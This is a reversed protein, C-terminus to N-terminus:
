KMLEKILQEKATFVGTAFNYMVDFREPEGDMLVYTRKGKGAMYGLELHASKGAPLVLVAVERADLNRKDFLFVDQAHEGKLAEAMKRGRAQEYRQWEDDAEPGASHWDDFVDLGLARLENGLKPVEPNRLSGILYVSGRKTNDVVVKPFTTQIGDTYYTPLGGAGM